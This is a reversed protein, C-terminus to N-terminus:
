ASKGPQITTFLVRDGQRSAFIRHVTIRPYWGSISEAARQMDELQRRVIFAADHPQYKGRYYACDAHAILWVAELQHAEALFRFSKEGVRAEDQSSSWVGLGAPGGPVVYLDPREAFSTRIFEEVQAHWRGDSCCVVLAGPRQGSWPTPATFVGAAPAAPATSASM